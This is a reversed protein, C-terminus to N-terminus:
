RALARAERTGCSAHPVSAAAVAALAAFGLAPALTARVIRAPSMGVAFLARAFPLAVRLPVHPAVLWPLVRVAGALTAVGLIAVAAVGTAKAARRAVVNVSEGGKWLWRSGPM